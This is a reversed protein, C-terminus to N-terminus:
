SASRMREYLLLSANALQVELEEVRRVNTDSVKFWVVSERDEMARLDLEMPVKTSTATVDAEIEESQERVERTGFLGAGDQEAIRLEPDRDKPFRVKRYVTYHGSQPGGHHVVISLLEYLLKRTTPTREAAPQFNQQRTSGSIQIGHPDALAGSAVPLVLAFM